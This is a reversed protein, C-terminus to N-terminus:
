KELFPERRALSQNLAYLLHVAQKLVLEEAVHLQLAELGLEDVSDFLLPVRWPSQVIFDLSYHVQLLFHALLFLKILIQGRYLLVLLFGHIANGLDTITDLLHLLRVFAEPILYFVQLM